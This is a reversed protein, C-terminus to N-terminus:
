IQEAFIAQYPKALLEELEKALTIIYPKQFQKQHTEKSEWNEYLVFQAANNLDQHLHYSLCTKEKRSPEIVATLLKKLEETKESKAEVICIVTYPKLITAGQTLLLLSLGLVSIRSRWLSLLVLLSHLVPIKLKM